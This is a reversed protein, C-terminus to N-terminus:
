EGMSAVAMSMQPAGTTCAQDIDYGCIGGELCVQDGPCGEDGECPRPCFPPLEGGAPAWTGDGDADLLVANSVAMPFVPYFDPVVPDVSFFTQFEPIASFALTMTRELQLEGFPVDKYIPKLLNREETGMAVVAVFGDRDPATLEIPEDWDVIPEPGHGLNIAEVLRGSVYVEIRDVGFWSATQVRLDLTFPEGPTVRTAEGPGAGNVSVDIVPGYTPLAHGEAMNRAVAAVDIDQPGDADSRVLTRPTGPELKSGHSDSAGTVTVHFGADLWKMWDDVVGPKGVCPAHAVSPDSLDAEAPDCAAADATPDPTHNWIAEQEEPTRILIRRAMRYSLARRFRMTCDFFREDPECEALSGDAGTLEPCAAELGAVDGEEVADMRRMCRDFVVVDENTPMRILDFRKSNFVEMADFDCTSTGLLPNNGELELLTGHPDLFAELDVKPRDLNKRTLTFPDVGLQSIYGFFGDRPHTIIKVGSAGPALAADLAAMLGPGDQCSWDPAGHDPIDLFDYKLPFAIFHGMEYTSMEVGIGTKITDRLGMVNVTPSLDTVIDHDTAIALDLGESVLTGVRAGLKVGSDHSPEQHMHFDGAIWGDTDVERVVQFHADAHGGEGVEIDRTDVSFEPGRSAFVRYRGPEIETVGEGEVVHVVHRIGNWKRSEGMYPKRLGDDEALSGDELIPVLTLKAPVRRGQQDTIRYSLRAPKPLVPTYRTTEGEEITLRVVESTVALDEDTAVALYTGPPMTARFDGDEVPDMGVDADAVNLLGPRGIARYNADAVEHVSAFDRTPDPDRFLHVHANKSAQRQANLVVGEITGVPTGRVEFVVDAISAIDGRGVVFYREFEWSSYADCTEDDDEGTSCNVASTAFATTSSTIIPVLVKPDPEGPPNATFFGYSVNGSAAAMYDLPVPHTFTDQGQFLRDFILRSEDFGMEPAFLNNQGGFFVFDGAVVGPRKGDQKNGLLGRFVPAAEEFHDMPLPEDPACECVPCGVADFRLGGPCDLDCAFDEDCTTPSDTRVARTVMRVYPKGPELIYDTELRMHLKVGTFLDLLAEARFVELADMIFTGEGEVRVVAAEGDSGDSVIHVEGEEPRATLLNAFPFVEALTDMGAGNRFRADTRNLDADVLTGGFVGPGPSAEVDLIALRIRDNELIFDGVRAAAVDGGILEDPSSARYARLTTEDADCGTLAFTAALALLLPRKM